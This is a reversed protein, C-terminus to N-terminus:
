VIYYSLVISNVIIELLFLFSKYYFLNQIKGLGFDAIKVNDDADLFINHSTLDLHLVGKGHIHALGEVIQRFCRWGWEENRDEEGDLYSYLTRCEM